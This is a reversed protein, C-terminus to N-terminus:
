SVGGVYKYRSIVFERGSWSVSELEFLGFVCAYAPRDVAVFLPISSTNIIAESIYNTAYSLYDSGLLQLLLDENTITIENKM